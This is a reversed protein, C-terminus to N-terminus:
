DGGCSYWQAPIAAEGHSHGGGRCGHPLRHRVAHSGEPGYWTHHVSPAVTPALEGVAAPEHSAAKAFQCRFCSDVYRQVDNQMGVWHVRAQTQLQVLTREAGAFHAADDHAMRMLATKIDTAERPVVLRNRFLVMTRGGLSAVSYKSGSWSAREPASAAEQAAVIKAVMPFMTLHGPVAVDGAGAGAEISDALPKALTLSYIYTEFEEEDSLTATPDAVVSRSGYDAITNWEGPIWSRVICGSRQIDSQWRAVRADESTALAALNENDCLLIVSAYPFYAPMVKTVAERQAYCEKVQAPWRVQTSIWGKSIYAIPRMEGTVPDAQHATICYGHNGSADTTITVPQSPDFVLLWRGTTVEALAERMLRTHEDTWHARLVIGPVDLEVLKAIRERQAKHDAVGHYYYRLIGLVHQLTERDKPVPTDMLSSVREPAIRWQHTPLDVEVGCWEFREVLFSCKDLSLRGGIALIRDIVRLTAAVLTDLDNAAVVLDDIWALLTLCDFEDLTPLVVKEMMLKQFVAPFSHWGFWGHLWGFKGIPTTFVSLRQATPGLKMTMFADRLDLKVAYRRIGASQAEAIMSPPMYGGEPDVRETAKNIGSPNITLRFKGNPKPVMIAFGYAPTSYPVRRVFRSRQWEGLMERYVAEGAKRSAPARFSVETPERVLRFDVVETCDDPNIETFVLARELLSAILREGARGGRQVEALRALVRDRLPPAPEMAALAVSDSGAAAVAPESVSGPAATAAAAPPSDVARRLAVVELVEAPSGSPPMRPSNVLKAGASVLYALHGLPAEPAKQGPSFRWDAWSVYLDRPSSSGLDLVWVNRLTFHRDWHVTTTRHGDEVELMLQISMPVDVMGVPVLMEGTPVRVARRVELPLERIELKCKAAFALSMVTVGAGSDCVLHGKHGGCLFAVNRLQWAPQLAELDLAALM